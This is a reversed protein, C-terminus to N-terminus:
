TSSSASAGGRVGEYGGGKDGPMLSAVPLGTVPPSVYTPDDIDWVAPAAAAADDVAPGKRAPRQISLLDSCRFLHFLRQTARSALAFYISILVPGASSLGLAAMLRPSM